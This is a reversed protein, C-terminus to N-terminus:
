WSLVPKVEPNGVAREGTTPVEFNQCTLRVVETKDPFLLGKQMM